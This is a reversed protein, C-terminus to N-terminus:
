EGRIGWIGGWEKEKCRRFLGSWHLLLATFHMIYSHPLINIFLHFIIFCVCVKAPVGLLSHPLPRVPFFSSSSPTKYLTKYKIKPKKTHLCIYLEIHFLSTPVPHPIHSFCVATYYVWIDITFPFFLVKNGFAPMQFHPIKWWFFSPLRIPAEMLYLSALIVCEIYRSKSWIHIALVGWRKEEGEGGGGVGHFRSSCLCKLNAAAATLWM